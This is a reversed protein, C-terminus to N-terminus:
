FFFVFFHFFPFFFISFNMWLSCIFFNCFHVTSEEEGFGFEYAAGEVSAVGSHRQRPAHVLGCERGKPSSIAHLTQTIARAHHSGCQANKATAATSGPRALSAICDKEKERGTLLQRKRGTLLDHPLRQNPRQELFTMSLGGSLFLGRRQPWPLGRDLHIKCWSCM